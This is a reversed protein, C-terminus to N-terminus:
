FLSSIYNMISFEHFHVLIIEFIIVCCSISDISKTFLDVPGGDLKFKMYIKGLLGRVIGILLLLAFLKWQSAAAIGIIGWLFYFIHIFAIVCGRNREDKSVNENDSSFYNKDKKIKRIFELERRPNLFTNFEYIAFLIGIIFFLATM